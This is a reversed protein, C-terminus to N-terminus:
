SKKIFVRHMPNKAVCGPNLVPDTVTKANVINKNQPM